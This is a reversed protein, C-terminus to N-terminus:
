TVFCGTNRVSQVISGDGKGEDVISVVIDRYNAKLSDFKIKNFKYRNDNNKDTVILGQKWRQSELGMDGLRVEDGGAM